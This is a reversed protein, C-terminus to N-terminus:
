CAGNRLVTRRGICMRAPYLSYLHPTAQAVTHPRCTCSLESHVHLKSPEFKLFEARNVSPMILDTM